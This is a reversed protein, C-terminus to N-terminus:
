GGPLWTMGPSADETDKLVCCDPVKTQGMIKTSWVGINMCLSLSLRHYQIGGQDCRKRQLQM